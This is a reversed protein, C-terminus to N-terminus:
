LTPICYLLLISESRRAHLLMILLVFRYVNSSWLIAIQRWVHNKPRYTLRVQRSCEGIIADRIMSNRQGPILVGQSLFDRSSGCKPLAIDHHVLGMLCILRVASNRRRTWPSRRLLSTFSTKPPYWAMEETSHNRVHLSLSFLLSSSLFFLGRAIRARPSISQATPPADRPVLVIDARSPHQADRSNM